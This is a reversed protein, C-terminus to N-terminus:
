ITNRLVVDVLKKFADMSLSETVERPLGNWRRVMRESLKKWIDLRFRGQCLKLNNERTRENAAQSFLSVGVEDCGETLFSHLATLDGGSNRKELSFM